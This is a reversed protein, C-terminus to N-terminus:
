VYTDPNPFAGVSVQTPDPLVALLGGDGVRGCLAQVTTRNTKTPLASHALDKDRSRSLNKKPVPNTLTLAKPDLADADCADDDSESDDDSSDDDDDDDSDSGDDDDDDGKSVGGGPGGNGLHKYVKNTGQTAIACTNGDAVDVACGVRDGSVLGGGFQM